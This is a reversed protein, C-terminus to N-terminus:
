NNPQSEDEEVEEEYEEDEEEEDEEEEDYEELYDDVEEIEEGDPTVTVITSVRKTGEGFTNGNGHSKGKGTTRKVM